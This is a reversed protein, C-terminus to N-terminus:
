SLGGIYIGQKHFRGCGIQLPRGKEECERGARWTSPARELSDRHALLGVGVWGAQKHGGRGQLVRREPWVRSEGGLDCFKGTIGEICM